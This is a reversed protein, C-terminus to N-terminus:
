PEVWGERWPQQGENNPQDGEDSMRTWSLLAIGQFCDNCQDQDNADCEPEGMLRTSNALRARRLALLPARGPAPVSHLTVLLPRIPARTSSACAVDRCYPRFGGGRDSLYPEGERVRGIATFAQLRDNGGFTESPSYYAIGDGRKMRTLPGAKGHCVQM